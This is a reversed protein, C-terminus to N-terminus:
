LDYQSNLDWREGWFEGVNVVIRRGKSVPWGTIQGRLYASVDGGQLQLGVRWRLAPLPLDPM